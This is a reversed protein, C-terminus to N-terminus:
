ERVPASAVTFMTPLNAPAPPNNNTELAVLESLLLGAQEARAAALALLDRPQYTTTGGAIEDKVVNPVSPLLLSATFLVAADKAKQLNAAITADTLSTDVWRRAAGEFAAQAIVSNPLEDASFRLDVATRVADYETATFAPLAM